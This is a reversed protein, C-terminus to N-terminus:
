GNIKVKKSTSNMRCDNSKPTDTGHAKDCRVRIREMKAKPSNDIVPISITFIVTLISVGIGIAIAAVLGKTDLQDSDVAAM